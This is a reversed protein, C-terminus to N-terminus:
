VCFRGMVSSAVSMMVRRTVKVWGSQVGGLTLRELRCLGVTFGFGRPNVRRAVWAPEDIVAQWEASM